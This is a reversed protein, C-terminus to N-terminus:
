PPPLAVHRDRWASPRQQINRILPALAQAGRDRWAASQTADLRINVEYLAVTGVLVSLLLGEGDAYLIWSWNEEALKEM